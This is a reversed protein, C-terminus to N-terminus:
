KVENFFNSNIKKKEGQLRFICIKYPDGYYQEPCSCSPIHNIVNCQADIGCTGPCPDHCKKNHCAKNSPCDSNLLCEPKCAVYPDGFHDSLCTCSGIGNQDRCVANAGCPSPVCPTPREQTTTIILENCYHFPDGSYGSQCTCIPTHSVVKCEANVGCSGACPDRCKKNICAMRINCDTNSTCEPRCKPPVGIYDHLCTCHPTEDRESCQSNPGCPSPLCPNIKVPITLALFFILKITM